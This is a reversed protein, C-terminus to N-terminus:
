VPSLSCQTFPPLAVTQVMSICKFPFKSMQYPEMPTVPYGNVDNIEDNDISQLNSYRLFYSVIETLARGSTHSLLGDIPILLTKYRRFKLDEYPVENARIKAELDVPLSYLLKSYAIKSDFLCPMESGNWIKRISKEFTEKRKENQEKERM